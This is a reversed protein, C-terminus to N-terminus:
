DSWWRASQSRLVGKDNAFCLDVLALAGDYPRRIFGAIDYLQYERERMFAIVDAAVPRSTGFPDLACEIIFLETVGFCRSAGRLIEEEFGEVDLKVIEPLARGSFLSDITVVPVMFTPANPDAVPLVTSGTDWDTMLLSGPHKGAAAAIIESNPYDRVFRRLATQCGPRPEILVSRAEPFVARFLRSWSGDSAGVDAVANCTVGRAHIDELCSVLDGIPRLPSSSTQIRSVRYGLRGILQKALDKLIM